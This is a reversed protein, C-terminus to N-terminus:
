RVLAEARAETDEVGGCRLCLRERALGVPGRTPHGDGEVYRQGPEIRTSCTRADCPGAVRAARIRYGRYPGAEVTLPKKM